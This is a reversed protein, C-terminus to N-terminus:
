FRMFHYVIFDYMSGNGVCGHLGTNCGLRLLSLLFAISPGSSCSAHWLALSFQMPYPLVFTEERADMAGNRRHRNGNGSNRNSPVARATGGLSWDKETGHPQGSSTRGCHHLQHEPQICRLRTWQRYRRRIHEARHPGCITASNLPRINHRANTSNDCNSISINTNTHGIPDIIFSPSTRSLEAPCPLTYISLPSSPLRSSASIPIGVFLSQLGWNSMIHLPLLLTRLVDPDNSRGVCQRSRCKWVPVGFSVFTKPMNNMKTSVLVITM